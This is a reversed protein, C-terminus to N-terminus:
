LIGKALHIIFETAKFSIAFLVVLIKRSSPIPAKLLVFVNRKHEKTLDKITQEKDIDPEAIGYYAIKSLLSFATRAKKVKGLFAISGYSEKSAMEYLLDAAERLQFDRKRLGGSSTTDGTQFYNYKMLNSVALKTCVKMVKFKFDIDENVKGERFRFGKILDCHYLGSCMSYGGSAKTSRLMFYQLVDKGEYIDLREEPQIVSKNPKDTLNLEYQIGKVNYKEILKVCYEFTDPEIWDDSDVFTVFDGTLPSDLAANRASSQGGNKKHLVTVRSDRQAYEDCIAPCGDPSGDDVLVVEINKYSQNLVSDVCRQLYKEVKYVPIIVSIVIM